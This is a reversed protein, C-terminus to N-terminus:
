RRRRRSTSFDRRARRESEGSGQRNTGTSPPLPCGNNTDPLAHARNTDHTTYIFINNVRAEERSKKMKAIFLYIKLCPTM